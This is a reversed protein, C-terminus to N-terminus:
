AADDDWQYKLLLSLTWAEKGVSRVDDLRWNAGDREFYFRLDEARDENKFRATVVKRDPRRFVERVTVKVDHLRWDQANTWFDFDIPGVEDGAAQDKLMGDWLAQLRPTYIDTPPAYGDNRVLNAYVESVFAGPDAIVRAPKAPAASLAPPPVAAPPKSPADCAALAAFAVLPALRRM